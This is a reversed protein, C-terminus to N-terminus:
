GRKNLEQELIIFRQTMDAVEQGGGDATIIGMDIMCCIYGACRQMADHITTFGRKVERTRKAEFETYQKM